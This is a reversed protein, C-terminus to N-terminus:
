VHSEVECADGYDDTFCCSDGRGDSAWSLSCEYCRWSDGDHDLGEHCHSCSPPPFYLNDDPPTTFGARERRRKSCHCLMLTTRKVKRGYECQDDHLGAEVEKQYATMCREAWESMVDAM